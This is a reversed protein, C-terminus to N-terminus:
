KYTVFLNRATNCLLGFPARPKKLEILGLQPSNVATTWGSIRNWCHRKMSTSCSRWLSSITRAGIGSVLTLHCPSSSDTPVTACVWQAVDVTTDHSCKICVSTQSWHATLAPCLPRRLVNLNSLKRSFSSCWAGVVNMSHLWSERKWSVCTWWIFLSFSFGYHHLAATCLPRM